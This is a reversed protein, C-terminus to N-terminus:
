AWEMLTVTFRRQGSAKTLRMLEAFDAPNAVVTCGESWAGVVTSEHTASARHIQTTTSTSPTGTTDELSDYRLVPIPKVPVLCEYDGHHKGFGLGDVVQGAAWVACGAPNKPDMRPGKGPDTTCRCAFKVAAWEVLLLMDDFADVVGAQNRLLVVHLGSPLPLGRTAMGAALAAFSPIQM